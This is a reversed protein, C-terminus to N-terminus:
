AKVIRYTVAQRMKATDILPMSSHKRRITRQANPAWTGFGRSNFAEQVTTSALRALKTLAMLMGEQLIARKWQAPGTAKIAAPLYNMLPIRLFSREPLPPHSTFCGFEHIFGLEAYFMPKGSRTPRMGTDAFLGVNIRHQGYKKLDDTLAKLPGVNLRVSGAQIVKTAM